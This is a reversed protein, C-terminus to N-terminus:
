LTLTMLCRLTSQRLLHSLYPSLHVVCLIAASGFSGPIDEAIFLM